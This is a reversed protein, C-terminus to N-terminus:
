LSEERSEDMGSMPLLADGDVPVSLAAFMWDPVEGSVEETVPLEAFPDALAALSETENLEVWVGLVSQDRVPEDTSDTAISGFFEPMDSSPQPQHRAALVLLAVCVGAALVSSWRRSRMSFKPPLVPQRQASRHDGAAVAETLLVARALAEAAEVDDALKAEYTDADAESLGGDLYRIAEWLARSCEGELGPVNGGNVRGATPDVSQFESKSM